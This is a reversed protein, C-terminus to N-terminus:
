TVAFMQENQKWNDQIQWSQCLIKGCCSPTIFVSITTTPFNRYFPYCHLWYLTEGKITKILLLSQHTTNYNPQMDSSPRNSTVTQVIVIIDSCKEPGNQTLRSFSNIWIPFSSCIFPPPFVCLSKFSASCTRSSTLLLGSSYVLTFVRFSHSMLLLWTPSQQRQPRNGAGSTLPETLPRVMRLAALAVAAGTWGTPPSCRRCILCVADFDSILILDTFDETSDVAPQKGCLLQM